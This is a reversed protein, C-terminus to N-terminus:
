VELLARLTPTPLCLLYQCQRHILRWQLTPSIKLLHNAMTRSTNNRCDCEGDDVVPKQATKQGTLGKLFDMRAIPVGEISSIAGSVFSIRSSINLLATSLCLPLSLQGSAFFRVDFHLSPPQKADSDGIVFGQM